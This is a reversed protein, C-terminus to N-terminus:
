DLVNIPTDSLSKNLTVSESNILNLQADIDRESAVTIEPTPINEQSPSTTIDPSKTPQTIITEQLTNTPTSNIIIRIVMFMGILISIGVIIWVAAQGRQKYTVM